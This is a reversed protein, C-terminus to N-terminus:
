NSKADVSSGHTPAGTTFVRLVGKVVKVTWFAQLITLGINTSGMVYMGQTCAHGEAQAYCVFITHQWFEASVLLWWVTRTALWSVAFMAQSVIGLLNYRKLGPFTDLLDMPVLFVSVLSAVGFFFSAYYQAFAGSGVWATFAALVHHILQAAGGSNQLEYVVNFIEYGVIVLLVLEVQPNRGFPTDRGLLAGDEQTVDVPPFFFLPGLFALEGCKQMLCTISFALQGAAADAMGYVPAEGGAAKVKAAVHKEKASSGDPMNSSLFSRASASSLLAVAVTGTLVYYAVFVATVISTKHDLPAAMMAAVSPLSDIM